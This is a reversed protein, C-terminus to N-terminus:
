IIVATQRFRPPMRQWRCGGSIIETAATEASATVPRLLMFSLAACAVFAPSLLALFIKKMKASTM